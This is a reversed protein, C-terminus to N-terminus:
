WPIELKLFGLEHVYVESEGEGGDDVIDLGVWRFEHNGGLPEKEGAVVTTLDRKEVSYKMM